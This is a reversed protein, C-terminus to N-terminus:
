AHILDRVDSEEEEFLAALHRRLFATARELRSELTDTVVVRGDESKAILGGWCSLEYSVPLELETHELIGKLWTMDRPDALLLADGAGGIDLQALAEATLRGLAEPYYPDARFAALHERARAIAIEVLDERVEGVLRLSDLRARHLIRAREANAPFGSSATCDEQIQQAEMRGQALIANVQAQTAREIEQIQAEGSARIKDLIVQLSM